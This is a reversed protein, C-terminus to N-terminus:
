LTGGAPLASLKPMSSEIDILSLDRPLDLIHSTEIDDVFDKWSAADKTSSKGALRKNM